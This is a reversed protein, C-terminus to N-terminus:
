EVGQHTHKKLMECKWISATDATTDGISSCGWPDIKGKSSELESVLHILPVALQRPLSDSSLNADRSSYLYGM